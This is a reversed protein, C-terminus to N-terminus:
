SQKKQIIGSRTRAWKVTVQYVEIIIILGLPYSIISNTKIMLMMLMMLIIISLFRILISYFITSYSSIARYCIYYFIYKFCITLDSYTDAITLKGDVIRIENHPM